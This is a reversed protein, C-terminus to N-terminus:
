QSWAPPTESWSVLIDAVYPNIPRPKSPVATALIPRTPPTGGSSVSQLAPVQLYKAVYGNLFGSQFNGTNYASLAALLAPQGPGMQVAAKQYSATLIRAAGSLNRCPDLAEEITYGLAPLNRSNLQGLGLDVNFGAAMFARATSVTAAESTPHPQAGPLGNVHLAIPNGGSEVRVVADMTVPHVNLACALLVADLM